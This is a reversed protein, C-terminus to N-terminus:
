EMRGLELPGCNEGLLDCVVRLGRKQRASAHTLHFLVKVLARVSRTVIRRPRMQVGIVVRDQGAIRPSVDPAAFMFGTLAAAPFPWLGGVRGRAM